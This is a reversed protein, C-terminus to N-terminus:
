ISPEAIRKFVLVSRNINYFSLIPTGHLNAQTFHDRESTIRGFGGFEPDDSNLILRYKGAKRLPIQYDFISLDTHWNFVFIWESDGHSFAITKNAQHIHLCEAYLLSGIRIEKALQLMAQDFKWLYEFRLTDDKLLHWQRRAYQYSWNNELRPFDIWEPHGFENGMFNLYAQGGLSLTFLRILKHLAIGRDVIVNSEFRSMSSYMAAGMLRFALTQDGVMAQDHSECYALTKVSVLRANLTDWMNQMDWHEDPLEKIIKIWYDPIGMAMRYDFGMGGEETPSTLGPMGSVEEAISIGGTNIEHILDNAISLYIIADGNVKDGFYNDYTGFDDVYGHHEYMMSTVGDFRFGDFHFEEMWYRINSLLFHRVENKGYNFIKSKWHPHEGKEGQYNYLDESGDLAYLGENINPVFHAHVLDMIVRIGMSHATKILQKLDDPSGFRSSPSFFNSVHYGFSGYYPHEAIGMLQITTYGLNKINPLVNETFEQYSGVGLKDQSMGIHAEYILLEQANMNLKNNEKYENAWSFVKSPMWHVASFDKSESDQVTFFAYAPMRQQWTNGSHVYLKYRSLHVLKDKWEKDPLAIEWIGGELRTLPNQCMEWNNFDGILYVEQAHPLWDRFYWIQAAKDYHFGFYLHSDAYDYLSANKSQGLLWNKTNVYDKYRREIQPAVPRLWPDNEIIPLTKQM